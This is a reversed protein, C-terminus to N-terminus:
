KRANQTPKFFVKDSQEYPICALFHSFIRLFHYVSALAWSMASVATNEIALRCSLMWKTNLKYVNLSTNKSLYFITKFVAFFYKLDCFNWQTPWQLPLLCYKIKPGIAISKIFINKFGLSSRHKHMMTLISILHQGYDMDPLIDYSHSLDNDSSEM